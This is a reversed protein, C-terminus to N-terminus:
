CLVQCSSVHITLILNPCLCVVLLGPAPGNQEIANFLAMAAQQQQLNLKLQKKESSSSSSSLSSSPNLELPDNCIIRKVVVKFCVTTFFLHPYSFLLCV